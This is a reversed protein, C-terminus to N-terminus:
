IISISISIREFHKACSSFIFDNLLPISLFDLSEIHCLDPTIIRTASRQISELKEKSSVSLLSHWAPAGYLLISRINSIYFTKLGDSNLGYSKLQRMLFLRSNCKSVLYEIHSSFNLKNDM